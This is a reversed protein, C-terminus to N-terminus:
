HDECEHSRLHVRDLELSVRDHEFEVQQADRQMDTDSRVEVSNIEDLELAKGDALYITVLGRADFHDIYIVHEPNVWYRSTYVAM